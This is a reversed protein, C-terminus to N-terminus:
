EPQILPSVSPYNRPTQSMPISGSQQNDTQECEGRRLIPPIPLVQLGFQRVRSRPAMRAGSKRAHRYPRVRQRRCCTTRLCGKGSHDVLRRAM